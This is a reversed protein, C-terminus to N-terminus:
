SYLRRNIDNMWNVMDMAGGQLYIVGNEHVVRLCRNPTLSAALVRNTLRYTRKLTIDGDMVATCEVIMDSFLYYHYVVDPEFRRVKPSSTYQSHQTRDEGEDDDGEGRHQPEIFIHLRFKASRTFRRNPAVLPITHAGKIESQITYLQQRYEHDRKRENVVRGQLM